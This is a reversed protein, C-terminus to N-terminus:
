EDTTNSDTANELNRLRAEVQDLYETIKMYDGGPPKYFLELKSLYANLEEM